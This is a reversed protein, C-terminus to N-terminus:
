HTPRMVSLKPAQPVDPIYNLDRILTRLMAETRFQSAEMRQMRELIIEITQADM